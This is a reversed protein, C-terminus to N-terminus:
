ATLLQKQDDKALSLVLTSFEILEERTIGKPVDLSLHETSVRSAGDQFHDGARRFLQMTRDQGSHNTGVDAPGSLIDSAPNVASKAVPVKHPAAYRLVDQITYLEYPALGECIAKIVEMEVLNGVWKGVPVKEYLAAAANIRRNVTKYDQDTFHACQWGSSNYVGNLISRADRSTGGNLHFVALSVALELQIAAKHNSAACSLAATCTDLTLLM